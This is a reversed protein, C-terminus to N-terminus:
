ICEYRAWRAGAGMQGDEAGMQGKSSDSLVGPGGDPEVDMKIWGERSGEMKDQGTARDPGVGRAVGMQGGIQSPQPVEGINM